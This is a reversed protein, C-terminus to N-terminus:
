PSGSVATMINTWGARRAVTVRAPWGHMRWGLAKAPGAQGAGSPCCGSQAWDSQAWGSQAWDSRAWGSQAWGSESGLRESGLRESGVRFREGQRSMGGEKANVSKRPRGPRLKSQKDKGKLAKAKTAAGSASSNHNSTVGVKSGYHRKLIQKSTQKSERVGQDIYLLPQRRLCAKNFTPPGLFCM